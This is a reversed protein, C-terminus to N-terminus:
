IAPPPPFFLSVIYGFLIPVIMLSWLLGTLVFPVRWFMRLGIREKAARVSNIFPYLCVGLAILASVIGRFGYSWDDWGAYVLGGLACLAGSMLGLTKLSQLGRKKTWAYFSRTGVVIDFGVVSIAGAAAGMAMLLEVTSPEHGCM